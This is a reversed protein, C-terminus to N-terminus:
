TQAGTAVMGSRYCGTARLWFAEIGLPFDPDERRELEVLGAGLQFPGDAIAGDLGTEVAPDITRKGALLLVFGRSPV